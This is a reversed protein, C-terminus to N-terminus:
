HTSYLALKNGQSDIFVAFYGSSESILTKAMIIRGGAEEVRELVKNLDDGGNLYLLPGQNSPVSGSGSVVAGGVGDVQPFYAVAHSDTVHKDMKIDFIFDYFDVAQKFDLAPIEFWSFYSSVPKDKKKKTGKKATSLSGM